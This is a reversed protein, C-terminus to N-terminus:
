IGLQWKINNVEDRIIDLSMKIEELEKKTAYKGAHEVSFNGLKDHLDVIMKFMDHTSDKIHKAKEIDTASREIDKQKQYIMPRMKEWYYKWFSLVFWVFVFSLGIITTPLIGSNKFSNFLNIIFGM